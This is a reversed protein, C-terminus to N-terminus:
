FGGHVGYVAGAVTVAAAALLIWHARQMRAFAAERSGAARARGRRRRSLPEVVFLAIMFVTWVLVMADMWWFAPDGFRDWAGLRETM